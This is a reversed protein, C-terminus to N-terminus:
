LVRRNAAIRDHLYLAPVNQQLKGAIGEKARFEVAFKIFLYEVQWIAAQRYHHRLKPLPGRAARRLNIIFKM